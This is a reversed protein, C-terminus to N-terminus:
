YVKIVVKKMILKYQDKDIIKNVFYPKLVQKAIDAIKERDFETTLQSKLKPNGDNLFNVTNSNNPSKKSINNNEGKNQYYQM